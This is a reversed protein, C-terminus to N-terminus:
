LSIIGRKLAETVAGTRDNVGLKQFINSIHTKVTSQSIHLAAGIEKNAAGKAMLQLVELERESLEDGSPARRSLETLRDLVKSAVVPQILSEGLHVARIAKFLDERPADKLLYARAGAAIGRFIYDDDSYTTLIVFKTDPKAERIQNMAEVGDMEPMRLDMLVVDPSLEKAKSVAETGNEAEGVVVFDRERKLMSLLGERVYPHDDAILIKIPEM